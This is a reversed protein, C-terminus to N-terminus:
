DGAVTRRLIAEWQDHVISPAFRVVSAPAAAALRTRLSPDGLLRGLAEALNAVRDSGPPVLLGNEGDRVLMNVGPCDAFGVVPVGQALAEGVVLGFGEYAAPHCLIAASEYFRAVDATVGCLRAPFGAGAAEIQQRLSAEEPGAGVIEVSWGPHSHAIRRWASLLLDFRKVATLRGVGLIVKRAEARDADAVPGLAAVPNPVVSVRGRLRTPFWDRFEELLVLISACKDFAEISRRRYVPNQDWRDFAEYDAAPVNHTSAVVPVGTGEAAFAAATIAPPMVAVVVDPRDRRLFRHLRQRYLGHTLAFRAEALPSVDPLRKLMTEVRRAMGPRSSGQADVTGGAGSASFGPFLNIVRVGDPDYAPPGNRPEFTAITVDHGRAAMAAATEVTIREAGGRIGALKQIVFHIKM